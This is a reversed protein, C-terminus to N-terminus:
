TPNPLPALTDSVLSDSDASRLRLAALEACLEGAVYYCQESFTIKNVTHRIFGAQRHFFCSNTTTEHPEGKERIIQLSFHCHAPWM